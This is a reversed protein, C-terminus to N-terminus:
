AYEFRGFAAYQGSHDVQLGDAVRFVKSAAMSGRKIVLGEPMVVEPHVEANTVPNRITQLELEVASGITVRSAHASQHVDFPAAIPPALEYTKIFIGWPGGIDGRLLRTLADRQSADAREDLYCAARGGGEHIAGPWKAYLAVGLRDVRVGDVHGQEFLWIWGGECFGRSPRANFNCPCGYDCNCAILVDGKLELGAM